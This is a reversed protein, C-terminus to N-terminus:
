KGFRCAPRVTGTKIAEFVNRLLYCSLLSAFGFGFVIAPTFLFVTVYIMLAHIALVMITCFLYRLAIVGCNKFTQLLTNDFRSMLPFLYAMVFLWLAAAVILFSSIMTWFISDPQLHYTVYGDVLLVILVALMILWAKTSQKFNSKFAAFYMKTINGEEDGVMKFLVYFLATTSAGITFIPLSTFFWLINLYASEVAKQIMRFVPNDLNFIANM